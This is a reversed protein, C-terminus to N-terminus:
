SNVFSSMTNQSTNMEFLIYTSIKRKRPEFYFFIIICIYLIFFLVTLFLTQYYTFVITFFWSFYFWWHFFYFSFLFLFGLFDFIVWYCITSDYYQTFYFSFCFSLFRILKFYYILFIYKIKWVLTTLSLGFYFCNTIWECTANRLVFFFVGRSEFHFICFTFIKDNSVM